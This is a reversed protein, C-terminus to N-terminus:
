VSTPTMLKEIKSRLENITRSFSICIFVVIVFLFMLIFNTMDIHM